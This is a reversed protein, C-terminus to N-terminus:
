LIFNQQTKSQLELDSEITCLRERVEADHRRREEEAQKKQFKEFADLDSSLKARRVALEKQMRAENRNKMGRLIVENEARMTEKYSNKESELSREEEKLAEEKAKLEQRLRDLGAREAQIDKRMKQMDVIQEKLVNLRDENERIQIKQSEVVEMNKKIEASEEKLLEVSKGKRRSGDRYDFGFVERCVADVRQNVMNPLSRRYFNHMNIGSKYKEPVFDMDDTFPIVMVHLGSRSERQEHTQSDYYIHREDEHQAGYIVNKKGFFDELAFYTKEYFACLKDYPLGARPAPIHLKLGTKRDARVLKPPHQADCEAVRKRYKIRAEHGTECGFYRNLHTLAPDIDINKHNQRERWDHPIRGSCAEKTTCKGGELVVSSM